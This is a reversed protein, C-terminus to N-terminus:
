SAAKRLSERMNYQMPLHSNIRAYSTTHAFLNAGVFGTVTKEPILHARDFLMGGADTFAMTCPTLDTNRNM